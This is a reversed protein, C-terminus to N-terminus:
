RRGRHECLVCGEVYEDHYGHDVVPTDDNGTADRWHEPDPLLHGPEPGDGPNGELRLYELRIFVPDGPTGYGTTCDCDPAARWEVTDEAPRPYVRWVYRVHCHSCEIVALRSM